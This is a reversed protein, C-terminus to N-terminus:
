VSGFDVLRGGAEGAECPTMRGADERANGGADTALQGPRGAESVRADARAGPRGGPRNVYRM